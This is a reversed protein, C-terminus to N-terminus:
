GDGAVTAITPDTAPTPTRSNNRAEAAVAARIRGALAVIEAARM